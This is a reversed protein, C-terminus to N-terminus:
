PNKPPQKFDFPIPPPVPPPATPDDVKPPPKKADANSPIGDEDIHLEGGLPQANLAQIPEDAVPNDSGASRLAADVQSRATDLTEAQSHPSDVAKEIDTLTKDPQPPQPPTFTSAPPTFAAPALTPQPTPAPAPTAPPTWSPPPPTFAAPAPTSPPMPSPAPIPDAAPLTSPRHDLLQPRDTAPLSFPDSTPDLQEQKTNATLAGGLTPPETILKSGASLGPEPQPPEPPPPPEPPSAPPDPPSPPPPKFAQAEDDNAHDIQLTGKDDTKKQDPAPQSEDIISGAEQLKSAVLQQNAGAAMLTASASMAQPSTKDNSFRNTEAVIGTLLATAIQTDLLDKGLMGGIDTVMESLSSAQPNVWNISGLGADPTTNLSTVTADHLIRGHATIAEDLDAQQKVGLAVVVDVNFDGESFELDAQSISTKYPTIFIRVINDEVKYRLKDAKSKDLSIIFDRLSDTNKELTEEPQLFELTSPVEGSFVAAAHKGQKNLLLTLGLCSALQDVSPNRSVTVLVNNAAKLREVLEQKASDM